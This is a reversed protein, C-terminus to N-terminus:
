KLDQYSINKIMLIYSKRFVIENTFDLMKTPLTIKGYKELYQICINKLSNLVEKHNYTDDSKYFLDKFGLDKFIKRETIKYYLTLLAKTPEPMAYSYLTYGVIYGCIANCIEYHGNDFYWDFDNMQADYIESFRQQEGPIANGFTANVNYIEKSFKMINYHEFERLFHIMKKNKEHVTMINNEFYMTHIENIYALLPGEPKVLYDIKYFFDLLLFSIGGPYLLTNLKTNDLKHILLRCESKFYDFKLHIENESAAITHQDNITKLDTFEDLLVDDKRDAVTAVEKLAQYIKHPAGDEVFTDFALCLCNDEDIAYRSYKLEFNEELLKRMMGIHPVDIKAIKSEAKFHHVDAEGLIVKSGQLFEFTIKGNANQHKLNSVSDDALFELFCTYSQLYKEANFFEIAKDWKQYKDESKYTDSYRGFQMKPEISTDAKKFFNSFIKM